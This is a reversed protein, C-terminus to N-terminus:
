ASTETDSTESVLQDIEYGPIPGDNIFTSDFDNPPEDQSQIECGDPALAVLESAGDSDEVVTELAPPDMVNMFAHPPAGRTEVDRPFNGICPNQHANQVEEQYGQHAQPLPLLSFIM